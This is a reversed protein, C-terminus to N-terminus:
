STTKDYNYKLITRRPPEYRKNKDLKLCYKEAEIRLEHEEQHFDPYQAAITKYVYDQFDLLEDNKEKLNDILKFVAKNGILEIEDEDRVRKRRWAISKTPTSKIYAIISHEKEV